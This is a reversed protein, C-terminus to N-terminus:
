MKSVYCFIMAWHIIKDLIDLYFVQEQPKKKRKYTLIRSPRARFICRLTYATHTNGYTHAM